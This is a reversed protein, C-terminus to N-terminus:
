TPRKYFPLPVVTAVERKGRIDAEVSTGTSSHAVDVYAMAISKELTPSYTGSSVEGIRTDGVFVESHERAIRKSALQLGVRVSQQPQAKIRLLAERGIFTPKDLKVAFSLGATLPDVNENLEHGYLPMAAELRLTDRCGLGCPILGDDKGAALLKEWLEVAPGFAILEFGDEGTYGTRSICAPIGAVEGGVCTYYKMAALDTAILRQLISLAQPGQVAIMCSDPGLDKMQFDLETSAATSSGRVGPGEGRLAPALPSSSSSAGDGHRTEIWARIKPANGANVVLSYINDCNRYVLVDDLVGGADNCMLGYRIQGIALSDVRCTVLHDLVRPADAGTFQLRGMHSIDFLGAARRVAHHEDVISTYQVPMEWGGFEVIRGNHAAHWGYLPTRLLTM